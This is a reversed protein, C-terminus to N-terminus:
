LIESFSSLRRLYLWIKSKKGQSKGNWKSKKNSNGSNESNETSQNAKSNWNKSIEVIEPNIPVKLPFKSVTQGWKLIKPLKPQIFLARSKLKLTRVIKLLKAIRRSQIFKGQKTSDSCIRHQQQVCLSEMVLLTYRGGYEEWPTKVNSNIVFESGQLLRLSWDRALLKEKVSAM